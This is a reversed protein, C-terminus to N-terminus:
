GHGPVQKPTFQKGPFRLVFTTGKDRETEAVLISGGHKQMVGYCYSLGLGFRDPNRKTTFFPDFIKEINADAIGSGNDKVAITLKNKSYKTSIELVGEGPRMADVANLCLNNLVEKLHDIDCILEGDAECRTMLKMHKAELIPAITQITYDIITQLSYPREILIINNAKEKIRNIMNLMHSTIQHIVALQEVATEPQGNEIYTKTRENLYNIKSIENKLSHSLISTGLTLARMSYDYREREFRVKIGWMGYKVGYVIFCVVMLLILLYNFQWLGNSEITVGSLEFTLRSTGAFDMSYSWLLAIITVSATRIHGKRIAANKEKWCGIVFGICGALMYIGVKYRISAIDIVHFPSTALHYILLLLPPLALLAIVTKRRKFKWNCFYFSSALFAWHLFYWYMYAAIVTITILTQKFPLPLPHHRELFPIIVLNTSASFSSCGGIALAIGIM